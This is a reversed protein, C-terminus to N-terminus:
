GEVVGRLFTVSQGAHYRIETSLPVRLPGYEGGHSFTIPDNATGDQMLIAVHKGDIGNHFLVLDGVKAQGRPIAELHRLITDTSGPGSYNYGTPDPLGVERYISATSGSCDATWSGYTDLATRYAYRIPRTQAYHVRPARDLLYDMEVLLAKRVDDLAPALEHKTFTTRDVRAKSEPTDYVHVALSTGVPKNRLLEIARARASRETRRPGEEGDVVLAFSSGHHLRGFARRVVRAASRWKKSPRGNHVFSYRVRNM